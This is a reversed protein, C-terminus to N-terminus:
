QSQWMFYAVEDLEVPYDWLWKPGTYLKKTIKDVWSGEPLYINRRKVNDLVPAVLIEDGVLFQDEITLVEKDQPAIRWLPSIIPEFRSASRQALKLVLPAIQKSHFQIFKRSIEATTSDYSHPFDSFHMVPLFASLELWRIYLERSPQNEDADDISGGVVEPLVFPYGIIGLTFIRPLVTRLGDWSSPLSPMVIVPLLWQTQSASEAFLTSYTGNVADSYKQTFRNMNSKLHAGHDAGFPLTRVDGGKLLVSEVNYLDKIERLKAPFYQSDVKIVGAVLSPNFIPDVYEILGPAVGGADEILLKDHIDHQFAESRTDIYPTLSLSLTFNSQLNRLMASAEPFIQTNFTLDGLYREWKSNLMLFGHSYNNAVIDSGFQILSEESLNSLKKTSWLTNKFIKENPLNRPTRNQDRLIKNLSYTQVSNIDNSVCVTYNMEPYEKRRQDGFRDLSHSILCFKGNKQETKNDLENFSFFLPYYSPAFITIANSNLWYRALVSGLQGSKEDNGTVFLTEPISINNLTWMQNKSLFGGGYWSADGIEFCDRLIADHRKGWWAIKYCDVNDHNSYDIWLQAHNKWTLCLHTKRTKDTSCDLFKIESPIELGLNGSM